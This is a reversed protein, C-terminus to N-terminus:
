PNTTSSTSATNPNPSSAASAPAPSSGSSAFPEHIRIFAKARLEQVMTEVHKKQKQESLQKRIEDKVEELARERAPKRDTLLIVHYGLSSKVVGSVEGVKLNRCAEEFEPIVQGKSFFGIDGGNDKSSDASFEQAVEAFSTGGKIQQLAKKAREESDTLVHSARFTEPNALSAKNAEYAQAVEQDTVQVSTSDRIGELLRGLLIQRKAQRLLDQVQPEKDLRRRQAEQVLITEMIMDELLRKKDNGIASRYQPNLKDMRSDVEQVTIVQGNVVAAVKQSSCGFAGLPLLFFAILLYVCIVM